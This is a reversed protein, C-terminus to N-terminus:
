QRNYEKTFITDFEIGIVKRAMDVAEKGGHKELTEFHRRGRKQMKLIDSPLSGRLEYSANLVPEGAHFECDDEPQPTKPDKIDDYPNSEVYGAGVLRKWVKAAGSKVIDRDPGLEATADLAALYATHGWGKYSTVSRRVVYANNCPGGDLNPKGWQVGSIVLDDHDPKPVNTKFLRSLIWDLVPISYIVTLTSHFSYRFSVIGLHRIDINMGGDSENLIKSVFHRVLSEGRMEDELENKRTMLRLGVPDEDNQLDDQPDEYPNSFFTSRLSYTTERMGMNKFYKKVKKRVDPEVIVGDRDLMDDGIDGYHNKERKM